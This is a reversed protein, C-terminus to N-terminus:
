QKFRKKEVKTQPTWIENPIGLKTVNVTVSLALCTTLLQDNKTAIYFSLIDSYINIYGYESIDLTNTGLGM